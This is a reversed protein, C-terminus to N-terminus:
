RKSSRTRIARNFDDIARDPAVRGAISDRLWENGRDVYASARNPELRIAENFDAIAEDHRGQASWSNGRSIFYHVNNPALKIAESYDAIEKDRDHNQGRSTLAFHMVLTTRPTSGSPRM